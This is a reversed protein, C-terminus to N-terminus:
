RDAAALDQCVDAIRQLAAHRDHNRYREAFAAACRPAIGTLVQRVAAGAQLAAIMPDAICGAGLAEVRESTMLQERYLPLMVVPTGAMLSQLVTAHGAHCVVVDAAAAARQIDVPQDAFAVQREAYHGRMAADIGQAHILLSAGTDALQAVTARFHPYEPKLYAFIRPRQDSEWRPEVGAGAAHIPGCYDAELRGPYHDLEAFSTVFDHEIGDFMDQLHQLKDFGAAALVTNVTELATRESAVTRARYTALGDSLLAFPTQQLPAAFGTGFRVAPIGLARAALLATPAHDAVLLRPQYHAFRERWGNFLLELQDASRYGCRLLLEAYSSIPYPEAREPKSIFPAQIEVRKAPAGPDTDPRQGVLAYVVSLGDGTLADGLTRLRNVHGLGSGLEWAFVVDTM